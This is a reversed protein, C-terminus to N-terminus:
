ASWHGLEAAATLRCCMKFTRVVLPLILSCLSGSALSTYIESFLGQKRWEGFGLVSCGECFLSRKGSLIGRAAGRTERIGSRGPVEFEPVRSFRLVGRAQQRVCDSLSVTIRRASLVCEHQRGVNSM